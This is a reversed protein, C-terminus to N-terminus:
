ESNSEILTTQKDGSKKDRIKNNVKCIDFKTQTKSDSVSFDTAFTRANLLYTITHPVRLSARSIFKHRFTHAGCENDDDRMTEGVVAASHHARQQQISSAPAYLCVFLFSDLIFNAVSFTYARHTSAAIHRTREQSKNRIYGFPFVLRIRSFECFTERERRKMEATHPKIETNM